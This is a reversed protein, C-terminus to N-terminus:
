LVCCLTASTETRSHTSALLKSLSLSFFTFGDLALSLQALSEQLRRGRLSLERESLERLCLSVIRRPHMKIAELSGSIASSTARTQRKPSARTATSLSVLSFQQGVQVSPSQRLLGQEDCDIARKVQREITVRNSIQWWCVNNGARNSASQWHDAM